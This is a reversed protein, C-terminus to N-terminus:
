NPSGRAGGFYRYIVYTIALPLVILAVFALHSAARWVIALAVFVLGGATAQRLAVDWASAGAVRHRMNHSVILNMGWTLLMPLLADAIIMGFGITGGDQLVVPERRLEVVVLGALFTALYALLVLLLTWRGRIM